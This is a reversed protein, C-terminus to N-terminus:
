GIATGAFAPCAFPGLKLLTFTRALLPYTWM